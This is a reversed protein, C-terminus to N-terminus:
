RPYGGKNESEIENLKVVAAEDNPNEKIAAVLEEIAKQRMGQRYYHMALRYHSGMGSEIADRRRTAEILQEHAERNGENYYIAKDYYDIAADYEGRRFYLNGIESADKSLKRAKSEQKHEQREEMEFQYKMIKLQEDAQGRGDVKINIHNEDGLVPFPMATLVSLSILLASFLKNRM